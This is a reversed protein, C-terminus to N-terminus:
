SGWATTKAYSQIRFEEQFFFHVTIVKFTKLPTNEDERKRKLGLSNCGGLACVEAATSVL